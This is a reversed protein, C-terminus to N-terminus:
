ERQSKDRERVGGWSERTAERTTERENDRERTTERM